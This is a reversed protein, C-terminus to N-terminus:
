VRVYRIEDIEHLSVRGWFGRTQHYMKSLNNFVQEDKDSQAVRISRVVTPCRRGLRQRFTGSNICWLLYRQYSTPDQGGPPNDRSTKNACSPGQHSSSPFSSTDNSSGITAGSGLDGGQHEPPLQASQTPPGGNHASIWQEYRVKRAKSMIASLGRGCRKISSMILSMESSQFFVM